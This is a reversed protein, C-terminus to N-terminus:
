SCKGYDQIPNRSPYMNHSHTYYLPINRSHHEENSCHSVTSPSHICTGSPLLILHSPMPLPNLPHLPPTQSYWYPIRWLPFSPIKGLLQASGFLYSYGVLWADSKTQTFSDFPIIVLPFFCYDDLGWVGHSGAPELRYTKQLMTALELYRQFCMLGTYTYTNSGSSIHILLLPHCVKSISKSDAWGGRGGKGRWGGLWLRCLVVAGIRFGIWARDWLGIPCSAWFCSFQHTTATNASTISFSPKHFLKYHQSDAILAQKLWESYWSHNPKIAYM